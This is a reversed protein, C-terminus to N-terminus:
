IQGPNFLGKPDLAQKISQYLQYSSGLTERQEKMPLFAGLCYPTCGMKFLGKMIEEFALKMRKVEDPDGARYGFTPFPAMAEPPIAWAYLWPGRDKDLFGYENVKQEFFNWWTTFKLIPAYFYFFCWAVGSSTRKPFSQEFKYHGANVVYLPPGHTGQCNEAGLDCGYKSGIEVMEEEKVKMEAKSNAFAMIDAVFYIGKPLSAVGAKIAGRMAWHNHLSYNAINPSRLFAHAAKGVGETDERAWGFARYLKYKPKDLLRVAVETIIGLTGISGTFLGVLDPGGPYRMFPGSGKENTWSGLRVLDSSPLVVELGVVTQGVTGYVNAFDGNGNCSAWAGMTMQPDFWPRIPYMLDNKDLLNFFDNVICGAEVVAVMADKDISIIKNMLSMDVMIGGRQAVNCGLFATGKGRPMLPVNKENALRVIRVVDEKTRPMVVVDPPKIDFDIGNCVYSYAECDAPRDSVQEPGVLGKLEQTVSREM